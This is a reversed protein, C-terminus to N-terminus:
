ALEHSPREISSPQIEKPYNDRSNRTSRSASALDGMSRRDAITAVTEVKYGGAVIDLALRILRREGDTLVVPSREAQALRNAARAQNSDPGPRDTRKIDRGESM